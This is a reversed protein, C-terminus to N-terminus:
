KSITGLKDWTQGNKKGMKEPTWYVISNIHYQGGRGGGGGM